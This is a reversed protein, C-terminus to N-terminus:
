CLGVRKFVFEIVEALPDKSRKTLNPKQLELFEGRRDLPFLLISHDRQHHTRAKEPLVFDGHLSEGM